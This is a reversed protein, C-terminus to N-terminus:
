PAEQGDWKSVMDLGTPDSPDCAGVRGILGVLTEVEQLFLSSVSTVRVRCSGARLSLRM